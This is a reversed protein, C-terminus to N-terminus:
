KSLEELMKKAEERKSFKVDAAFLREIERRAKSKDGAKLWGQALHYGIEPNKPAAKAAKELLEIGRVLNGQEVLLWGLTATISPSDPALKYARESLDLARADKVQHYSVALNILLAVNDPQKQQLWEYHTIAEKYRGRKMASDAVYLRVDADDPSEKLWQLVRVDGEATRGASAYAMHLKILSAGSKAMGHVTEYVKIAQPYKQEAMLIDGELVFGLTSKPDQKQAQRAINMAEPYRKAHLDLSVMALLAEIFDPKLSLAQKLTEAAAGHDAAGIQASALRYLAIPSKPQLKVLKRYTTLAQENQGANMQMAGLLDLLQPNEPSAAQAQQAVELAKKAEGMQVYLRALMIQPEVSKPNAKRARELWDLQEKRTAGLAPGLRALALLAQESNKDKEILLELRGRAAKPNKERLDLQALNTAAALFTPQLELARQFSKRAAPLDKKGIYIVGKLNFTMPNSPQKKELTEMAKLAQDYSGRRLHSVVLVIDTQYKTPDLELASELDAFARETDGSAMRIMGLKTRAAANKSDLKAARDFYEAAKGFEGSQLYLEGALAVLGTDEPAQKLGSQLVEIARPIQGSRALTSILLKRAYLNSPAREIVRGLHALAQEYSGLENLIAGALLASPLYDPTVKLVQQIAENAAKYDRAQFDVLAQMHVVLVNRPVLKRTEALMKRAEELKNNVRHLSIINLRATVNAPDVELVKQNAALAGAQDAKLRALDGKVLWADVHKPASAIAREVLRASEDLKQDTAALRAQEVLADAFEPQKALARELLPRAEIIRGLGMLARARLTLVDAQVADSAHGELPVQDLVKKFEGLMLMARGLAPMAKSREYSLELARRLELEASRYDGSSNYTVGLLYRAEAHNPNKQLVNKLEIIAAKYDSKQRYEQAKAILRQPDSSLGCGSALAVVAIALVVIDVYRTIM